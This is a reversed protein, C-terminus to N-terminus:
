FCEIWYSEMSTFISIKGLMLFELIITWLDLVDLLLWILQLISLNITKLRFCFNMYKSQHHLTKYTQKPTIAYRCSLSGKLVLRWTVEKGMFGPGNLLATMICIWTRVALSRKMSFSMNLNEMFHYFVSDQWFTGIREQRWTEM